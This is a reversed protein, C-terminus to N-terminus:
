RLQLWELWLITVENNIEFNNKDYVVFDCGVLNNIKSGDTYMKICNIMELNSAVKYTINKSHIM